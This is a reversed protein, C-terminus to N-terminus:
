GLNAGSGLTQEGGVVSATELLGGRRARRSAAQSEGAARMQENLQNQRKIKEAEAKRRAAEEAKRKENEGTLNKAVKSVAGM